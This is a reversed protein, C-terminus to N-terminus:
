EGTRMYKCNGWWLNCFNVQSQWAGNVIGVLVMRMREFGNLFDHYGCVLRFDKLMLMVVVM